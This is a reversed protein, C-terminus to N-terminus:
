SLLQSLVYLVFGLFITVILAHIAQRVHKHKRDAICATAYVQELVQYALTQSNLALMHQQWQNYGQCAIDGFFIHGSKGQRTLRPTLTMLVRLLTVLAAILFLAFLTIIGAAPLHAWFTVNRPVAIIVKRVVPFAPAAFVPFAVVLFALIAGAKTDAVGIWQGNRDLLQSYANYQEYDQHAQVANQNAHM